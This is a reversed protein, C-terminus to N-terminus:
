KRRAGRAPGPESGAPPIPTAVDLRLIVLLDFGDEVDRALFAAAAGDALVLVSDLRTRRIEPLAIEVTEDTGPLSTPLTTIPQQLASRELDVDLGFEGESLRWGAVAFTTGFSVTDVVPDVVRRNGPQVVEVKWDRVYAIQDKLEVTAAQGNHVLVRPSSLVEFTEPRRGLERLIGSLWAADGTTSGEQIGLAAFQDHPARFFRAQVDLLTGDVRQRDLFREIWAHQAGTVLAIFSGEGVPRLEDLDADLPPDVFTEIATLLGRLARLRREPALRREAESGDEPGNSTDVVGGEPAPPAREVLPAVETGAEEDPIWIHEALGHVLDAIDYIRFTREGHSAALDVTTRGASPARSQADAPAGAAAVLSLTLLVSGNRSTAMPSDIM